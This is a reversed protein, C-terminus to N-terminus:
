GLEVENESATEMVMVSSPCGATPTGAVKALWIQPPGFPAVVSPEPTAVAVIADQAAAAIPALAHDAATVFASWGQQGVSYTRRSRRWASVLRRGGLM